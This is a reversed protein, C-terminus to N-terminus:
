RDPTADWLAQLIGRPDDAKNGNQDIPGKYGSNRLDFFRKTAAPTNIQSTNDASLGLAQSFIGM